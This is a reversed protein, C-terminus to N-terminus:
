KLIQITFVDPYHRAKHDQSPLYHETAGELGDKEMVTDSPM